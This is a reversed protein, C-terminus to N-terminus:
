RVGRVYEDVPFDEIMKAIIDFASSVSSPALEQMTRISQVSDAQFSLVARRIPAEYAEKKGAELAEEEREDKLPLGLEYRMVDLRAELANVIAETVDGPYKSKLANTLGDNRGEVRSLLHAPVIKYIM